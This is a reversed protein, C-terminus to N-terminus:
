ETFTQRRRVLVLGTGVCLLLILVPMASNDRGTSPLTLQESTPTSEGITSELVVTTTIEGPSTAPLSTTTTSEDGTTDPAVSTETTAPTSTTTTSSEPVSSTPTTTTTTSNDEPVTTTTVTGCGVAPDTVCGDNEAGDLVGDNDQDRDLDDADSADALGDDDCDAKTVCSSDEEAGDLVSDDDQDSDLDDADLDDTLGDDDCDAKEECGSAEDDNLVGDGDLDANEWQATYTQEECSVDTGAPLLASTQTQWGLFTYGTRTPETSSLTVTSGHDCVHDSPMGTGGNAVYSITHTDPTWQAYLTPTANGTYLNGCIYNNGPQWM